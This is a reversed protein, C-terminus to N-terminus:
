KAESRHIYSRLTFAHAQGGAQPRWFTAGEETLIGIRTVPVGTMAAMKEFAAGNRAPIAALLEYDDGGTLAIDLLAPDGAIAAKAAESLPVQDMRMERGLGTCLKDCDGVLGDSIDMAASAYALIAPALPLRPEPVLYREALHARHESSLTKVWPEGPHLRAQLGLAADGITGSVYLLDGPIAGKRKVMRGSPVAGFATISVTLTPTLVTDGGLLPCAFHRADAGLAQAFEAIWDNDQDSMGFGLLFGIPVAGKAALDSINVRLAKQAIDQPEELPFFHVGSVIMDKTIILDHGSPPTILAADDKLGLGGPGALPAFYRAILDFEGLNTGTAALGSNSASSLNGM